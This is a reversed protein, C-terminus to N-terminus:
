QSLNLNQINPCNQTNLNEALKLISKMSLDKTILTPNEKILWSKQKIDAKTIFYPIAEGTFQIKLDPHIYDFLKEIKKTKEVLKNETSKQM